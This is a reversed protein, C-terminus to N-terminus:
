CCSSKKKNQLNLNIQEIKLKKENEIIKKKVEFSEEFIKEFVEKVNIGTKASTEFFQSDWSKALNEGEEVEVARKNEMDAKNGVLIIACNYESSKLISEYFKQARELSYKSTIDYVLIVGHAERFYNSTFSEFREQGATDWVAFKLEKGEIKRRFFQVDAGVTIMINVGFKNGMFNNMLCTKGVGTDGAFVIKVLILNEDLNPEM